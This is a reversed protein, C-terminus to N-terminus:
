NPILLTTSDTLPISNINVLGQLEDGLNTEIDLIITSIGSEGTTDDVSKSPVINQDIGM